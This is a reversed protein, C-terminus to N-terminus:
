LLNKLLAELWSAAEASLVGVTMASSVSRIFGPSGTAANRVVARLRADVKGLDARDTSTDALTALEVLETRTDDDAYDHVARAVEALVRAYRDATLAELATLTIDVQRDTFREHSALAGALLTTVQTLQDGRASVEAELVSTIRREANLRAQALELAGELRVREIASTTFSTVDRVGSIVQGYHDLTREIEEKADATEIILRVTLDNQHIKVRAGQDGHRERVITAFENLVMMGANFYDAPFEIFREIVDPGHSLESFHVRHDIRVLLEYCLNVTFVQRQRRDDEASVASKVLACSDAPPLDLRISGALDKARDLAEAYLEEEAQGLGLLDNLTTSLQGQLLAARKKFSETDDYKRHAKMALVHSRQVTVLTGRIRDLHAAFGDGVATEATLLGIGCALLELIRSVDDAPYQREMLDTAM